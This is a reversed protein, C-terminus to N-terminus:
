ASLWSPLQLTAGPEYPQISRVGEIESREFRSVHKVLEASIASAEREKRLVNDYITREINSLVIHAVVPRKQGFRWCRRICQYYSEYSDSLGVFAMRACHQWNMGFGAISPKTVLVRIEGRSFRIMADTKARPSMSGEVNVAGRIAKTIARAEDNLGCWVVWPEDPEVAILEVATRVRDELTNKRVKSRGQIGGISVAFLMGDPVLDTEVYHPEISLPPLDYGEDPYGLDSPRKLSMSWSALWQYFRDRGHRKLRWESQGDRKDSAHIFFHSLMEARTMVGLFEAHNALEAIDNPAPTATCCLRMPTQRFAEILATRTKADYHKLISSEDLVVADWATPDFQDLRDYNTIVIGGPATNQDTAYSVEIGWRAGEAITQQAVALPALILVRDGAHQAWSLSMLTKGLGTDAFLAARGKRLSWRVLDRQFRFLGPHLAEAAVERGVSPAAIQKTALFNRYESNQM